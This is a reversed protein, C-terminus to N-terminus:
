AKQNGGGRILENFEAEGPYSGSHILAGDIFVLPLSTSEKLCDRVYEPYISDTIKASLVKRMFEIGPYRKKTKDWVQAEARLRNVLAMRDKISSHCGCGGGMPDEIYLEVKM